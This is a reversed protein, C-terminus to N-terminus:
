MFIRGASYPEHIKDNRVSRRSNAWEEEISNLLGDLEQRLNTVHLLTTHGADFIGRKGDPLKLQARLASNSEVNSLWNRCQYALQVDSGRDYWLESIADIPAMAGVLYKTSPGERVQNYRESNFVAEKSFNIDANPNRRNRLNQLAEEYNRYESM